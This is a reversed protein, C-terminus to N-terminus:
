KKPMLHELSYSDFGLLSTVSNAPRVASEILYLIGKAQFNTLKSEHFAQEIDSDSPFYNTSDKAENFFNRLDEPNFIQNFILSTFLNNYNKSTARVIIRRIIYSELLRCIENFNEHSSNKMAAYLVYPILTTAKLGFIVINVREIGFAAPVSRLCCSRDFIERFCDAYNKIGSLIIKKDNACYKLFIDIM